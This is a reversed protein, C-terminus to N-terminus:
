IRIVLLKANGGSSLNWERRVLEKGDETEVWFLATNKGSSGQNLAKIELVNEGQQLPIDIQRTANALTFTLVEANNLFITVMDGDESGHDQALVRLIRSPTETVGLFQDSSNKLAEIKLRKARSEEASAFADELISAGATTESQPLQSNRSNASAPTEAGGFASELANELASVTAPPAEQKATEATKEAAALAERCYDRAASRLANANYDLEVLELDEVEFGVKFVAKAEAESYFSGDKRQLLQHWSPSSNVMMGLELSRKLTDPRFRVHMGAVDLRRDSLVIKQNPVIRVSFISDSLLEAEAFAARFRETMDLRVYPSAAATMGELGKERVLKWCNEPVAVIAPARFDYNGRFSMVPEGLLVDFKYHITLRSLAVAGEGGAFGNLKDVSLNLTNLLPLKGDPLDKAVAPSSALFLAFATALAPRGMRRGFRNGVFSQFM